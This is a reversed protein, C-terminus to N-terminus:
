ARYEGVKGTYADRIGRCMMCINQWRPAFVLAFVLLKFLARAADQVIWGFPTYSRQYLLLRNRM